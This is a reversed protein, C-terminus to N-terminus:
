EVRMELTRYDLRAAKPDAGYKACLAEWERSFKDTLDHAAAEAEQAKRTAEAFEIMALRQRLEAAEVRRADLEDVKKPEM